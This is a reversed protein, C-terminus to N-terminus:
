EDCIGENTQTPEAAIASRRHSQRAPITTFRAGMKARQRRRRLLAFIPNYPTAIKPSAYGDGCHSYACGLVLKVAMDIM